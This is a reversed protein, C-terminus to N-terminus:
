VQGYIIMAFFTLYIRYFDSVYNSSKTTTLNPMAMCADLSYLFASYLIIVEYAQMYRLPVTNLQSVPEYSLKNFFYQYICNNSIYNSIYPSYLCNYNFYIAKDSLSKFICKHIINM